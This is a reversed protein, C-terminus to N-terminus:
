AGKKAELKKARNIASLVGKISAMSINHDMGVGFVDTGDPIRLHIYAVAQSDSGTNIAHEMYDVFTYRDLDQGHVANFFADIPGNGQGSVPITRKGECCLTGSFSVASTDDTTLRKSTGTSSATPTTSRSINGSSCSWFRGGAEARSRHPRDGGPRHRQVGSAHGQAARYGFNHAMIFAAGGKGSQSNIRIIPEYDRGVDAPDIPLYPVEWKDSHSEEM